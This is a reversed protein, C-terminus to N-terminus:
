LRGSGTRKQGKMKRYKTASSRSAVAAAAWNDRRVHAQTINEIGKLIRSIDERVCKRLDVVDKVTAQNSGRLEYVVEMFESFTLEDKEEFIYDAM